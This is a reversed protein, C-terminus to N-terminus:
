HDLIFDVRYTVWVPVPQGNQNAPKYLYDWAVKFAAEDLLESGSSVYVVADRVKGEKSVLAKIWVKGEIGAQEAFHPYVPEVSQILVPDHEVVFFSDIPPFADPINTNIEFRGSGAGEDILGNWDVLTAKEATSVIVQDPDLIATDPMPVPIGLAGTPIAAGNGVPKEWVISSQDFGSL